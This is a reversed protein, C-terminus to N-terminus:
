WRLGAIATDASPLGLAATIKLCLHENEVSQSLDIGGPIKGIQPKMIHTTATTGHPIHWRDNWFLFATKDQAGAISIRFEDDEDM